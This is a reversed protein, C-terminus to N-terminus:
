GRKDEPAGEPMTDPPIEKEEPITDPEVQKKEQDLDCGCEKGDCCPKDKKSFKGFFKEFM